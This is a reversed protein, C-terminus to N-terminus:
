FGVNRELGGDNGNNKGQGYNRLSSNKRPAPRISTQWRGNRYSRPGRCGDMSGVRGVCRMGSQQGGRVGGDESSGMSRNGRDSVMSSDDRSGGGDSGGATGDMNGRQGSVGDGLLLQVKGGGRSGDKKTM